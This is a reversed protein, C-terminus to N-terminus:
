VAGAEEFDDGLKDTVFRRYEDEVRTVSIDMQWQEHCDQCEFHLWHILELRTRYSFEFEDDFVTLSSGPAGCFPCVLDRPGERIADMFDEVGM